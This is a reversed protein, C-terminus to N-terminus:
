NFTYMLSITHGSNFGYSYPTYAYDFNIGQWFLGLGTAFGKSDYGTMYGLRIAILSDYIVEGGAHIHMDDTDLYKQIGGVANVVSKISELNFNYAAGFRFDTPLKTAENRLESLSGINKISAGLNLGEFINNYSLGFDFVYGGAEDSLLNEYVYKATAGVSINDFVNFGTSISGFAYHANFTSQPLESATTRVELDSITTNNFGVAFPIGFFSFSAGVLQTSMDQLSQIHTLIVQPNQYNALLAPNYNLATLDNVGVVGLDGMAINRAGFGNKLFAVGSNGATQAFLVSSTILIVILINKM